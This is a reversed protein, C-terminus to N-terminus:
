VPEGWGLCNQFFKKIYKQIRVGGMVDRGSVTKIFNIKVRIFFLKYVIKAPPTPHGRGM